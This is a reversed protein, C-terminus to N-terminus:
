EEGVMDAPDRWNVIPRPHLVNYGTSGVGLVECDVRMQALLDADPEGWTEIADRLLFLPVNRKETISIYFRHEIRGGHRATRITTPSRKFLAAAAAPTLLEHGLEEAEARAKRRREMEAEWYSSM